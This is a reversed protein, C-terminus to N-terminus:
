LVQTPMSKEGTNTSLFVSNSWKTMLQKLVKDLLLLWLLYPISALCIAMHIVAHILWHVTWQTWKPIILQHNLRYATNKIEYISNTSHKKHHTLPPSVLLPNPNVKLILPVHTHINWWCSNSHSINKVAPTCVFCVVGCRTAFYM